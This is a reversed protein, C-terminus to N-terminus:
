LRMYLVHLYSYYKYIFLTQLQVPLDIIGSDHRIPTRTSDGGSWFLRNQLVLGSFFLQVVTSSTGLGYNVVYNLRRRFARLMVM